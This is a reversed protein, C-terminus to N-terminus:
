LSLSTESQMSVSIYVRSSFLIENKIEHRSFGVWLKGIMSCNEKQENLVREALDDLNFKIGNEENVSHLKNM